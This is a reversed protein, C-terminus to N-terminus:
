KRAPNSTKTKEFKEMGGFYNSFKFHQEGDYEICINLHPLYFDFPLIVAAAVVPGSLCGRGAEDTGVELRYESFRAELGM